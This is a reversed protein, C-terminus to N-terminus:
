RMGRSVWVLTSFFFHCGSVMSLETAQNHLHYDKAGSWSHNKSNVESYARGSQPEDHRLYHLGPAINDCQQTTAQVRPYVSIAVTRQSAVIQHSAPILKQQRTNKECTGKIVITTDMM